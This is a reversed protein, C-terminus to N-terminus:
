VNLALLLLDYMAIVTAIIMLALALSRDTM